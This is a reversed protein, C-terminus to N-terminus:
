FNGQALTSHLVNPSILSIHMFYNFNFAFFLLNAFIENVNEIIQSLNCSDNGKCTYQNLQKQGLRCTM